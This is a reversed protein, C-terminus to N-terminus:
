ALVSKIPELVYMARDVHFKTPSCQVSHDLTSESVLRFGLISFLARWERPGRFTGHWEHEYLLKAHAQTEGKLDEIVVVYGKAVRHAHQLLAIADDAAHHLVYNFVVLDKSLDNHPLSQGNFAACRDSATVDICEWSIAGPITVSRALDGLAGVGGGVDLVDLSSVHGYMGSFWDRFMNNCGLSQHNDQMEFGFRERGGPEPADLSPGNVKGTTKDNFAALACFVALAFGALM